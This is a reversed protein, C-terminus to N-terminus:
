LKIVVNPLSEKLIPAPLYKRGETRDSLSTFNILQYSIISNGTKKMITPGGNGLDTKLDPGPGQDGSISLHLM